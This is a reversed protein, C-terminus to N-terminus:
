QAPTARGPGTELPRLGELVTDLPPLVIALLAELGQADGGHSCAHELAAAADAVTRAGVTGAVSKLDHVTRLALAADGAACAARFRQAFSAERDRFMCLVQRYIQDNGGLELLEARAEIGPLGALSTPGATRIWRVLTAFLDDVKIPKTIHDNMGAALVKDRAGAMANATMAIIPLDRLRAQQRLARTAAYGDMVPMQCDMLVGDFTERSLIEVAQQGDGVVTVVIGAGGLLALALEQNIENDEVLLLRAGRLSEQDAKLAEERVTSRRRGAAARGLATRCADLLSSPTVPKTLLASVKLHQRDLRLQLQDRDFGSVMLVTPTRRLHTALAISRAFEVGDMEPMKWDVLVLDYPDGRSDALTLMQLAQVGDASDDSRCGFATTMGVLIVRCSANDDVVLIRAGQLADVLVAGAGVPHAQLGLRVTFRFRSGQGPQSEVEIEGGMLGVLRRCIVLGLGTGGYRRSTSVEGQSFPQFLQQLQDPTMGKGTDRVEFRLHVSADERGLLEVRVVVEGRETFKIANNVLNLLVQGLRSPDGVLESPVLPSQDFLLELGSQQASMGVVGALRDMVDFLDFDISEMDLKGAEIKSFDLIDNIIGLLSEASHHVTEIYRRQPPELHGQLALYSMGLIANMPTRIEHSMSALFEGKAQSAAEASERALREVDARKRETLDLVYAVGSEQSGDLLAAGILVPVRHGDRHLYERELAECRGTQFIEDASRADEAAYEPPTIAEWRLRGARLDERSYGLLGLFSDNADEIRGDTRWFYVGIINSEVLRQVRSLSHRLAEEARQRERNEAALHKFLDANELSIAAQSAIVNLVDRRAVTLKAPARQNELYLAGLLKAQKALPLCIASRPLGRATHTDTAFLAACAPDELAASQGTRMVYQLVALPLDAETVDAQRLTVQLNQPGTIAEAAVRPQRDSLLVLVGREAGAHQVAMVILTEILKDLVIESSVAQAARVVAALDLQAVPADITGGRETVPQAERLAPYRMDLLRVKGLAGWRQYCYHANRILAQAVTLLGRGEYFRGALESAVAEGHVFAAKRAAQISQEYLREADAPRGEIRALEAALLAERDAFNDPCDKALASIARLHERIRDLSARREAEPLGEFVAARALAAYVRMTSSDFPNLMSLMWMLPGVKAEAALGGDYDEALFRAHLQTSWYQSASNALQPDSELKQEYAAQERLDADTSDIVGRLKDVGLLYGDSWVIMRELQSKRALALAIEFEPRVEDLPDGAMLRVAGALGACYSAFVADGSAEALVLSRRMWEISGQPPMTYPLVFWGFCVYVLLKYRDLGRDILQLALNGFRLGLPYDGRERGIVSNLYIYGMCSADCNGHVLSLRVMRAITLHLLHQDTFLAASQTTLLVDMVAIQDPDHMRPLDVLQEVVRGDLAPWLQEYEQAVDEASPHATWSVGVGRLFELCVEIAGDSQSQFQWLQVHACAVASREAVTGAQAALSVFRAQASEFAGTMVECEARHFELGFRLAHSGADNADALLASGAVCHSMAAAFAGSQRARRGASLNLEALRRREDADTILAAGRNMQNVVEFLGEAAGTEELRRWLLRGIRLHLATREDDPLLAYAAQQVRDHLLRISAGDEVVLGAVVAPALDARLEAESSDHIATLTAVSAGIGLAAIQTLAACTREPLRRLRAIMFDVVNDTFRQARIRDLEWQWRASGPDFALLAEAVLDTLFQIAFFPNGGTKEHVLGALSAVREGGEGLADAFLQCVTEVPLPGLVCEHLTVGPARLRQLAHSVPHVADVENDRYAGVLLLYKTDADAVLNELLRLSAADLWQIDDLFLVLPHEAQAFVRLFRRIVAQFLNQADLPSMEPLPPQKGVVLELEPLLNVLLQGNSGLAETFASRWVLLQTESGSLIARVPAHFAQALSGFPIDRKFPDAKGSAFVGRVGAIVPRLSGVLTSKGVGSCGSVLVPEPTGGSAMRALASSLLAIERDRGYLTDPIPLSSHRDQTGLEFSDIRGQSQWQLLCRELDAQVGAASQYREQPAKALLKLIIAGVVPPLDPAHATPAMPPQAVHCHVWGMVDTASFPLAGSMLEYLTVGFAYLDSRFDVPRDVCGTQEPAMYAPSGTIVEAAASVRVEQAAAIAIGFGTLHLSADAPDVLVHLPKIDRHVLGRAHLRGIAAALAIAVQLRWPLGHPQKLLEDLPEGGPDELVLVAQRGRRELALPRAAWGPDLEARLSYEHEIRRLVSPTPENGVPILLLVPAQDPLSRGRYLAFEAAERLLDIAYGSWDRTRAHM